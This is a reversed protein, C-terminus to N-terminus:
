AAAQSNREAPYALGRVLIVGAVKAVPTNM